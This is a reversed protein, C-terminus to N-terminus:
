SCICTHMECVVTLGGETEAATALLAGAHRVAVAAAHADPLGSPFLWLVRASIGRDAAWNGHRGHALHRRGISDRGPFRPRYFDAYIMGSVTMKVGWVSGFNLGFLIALLPGDITTALYASLATQYSSLLVMWKPKVGRDRAWGAVFPLSAQMLGTPIM